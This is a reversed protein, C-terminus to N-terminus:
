ALPIGIHCHHIRGTEPPGPRRAATRALGLAAGHQLVLWQQADDVDADACTSSRPWHLKLGPLLPSVVLDTPERLIVPDAFVAGDATQRYVSVISAPVDIFWYEAVRIPAYFDRKITQDYRRTSPSSVEIVLSPACRIVQDLDLRETQADPLFVLDPHVANLDDIRIAPEELIWGLHHARVHTQLAHNLNSVVRSHRPMPKPTVYHEGDILEHRLGDDPMRVLDEYTLKVGPM